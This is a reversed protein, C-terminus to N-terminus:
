LLVGALRRPDLFVAPPLSARGLALDALADGAEPVLDAHRETFGCALFVQPYRPHSGLLASGQEALVGVNALLTRAAAGPCVVLQPATHTDSRTLVRAGMGSREAYWDIVTEGFRLDAGADLAADTGPLESRPRSDLGLVRVGRRALRHAARGGLRGLGIVIVDYQPTTVARM